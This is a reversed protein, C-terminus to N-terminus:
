NSVNKDKRFIGDLKSLDIDKNQDLCLQERWRTISNPLFRWAVFDDLGRGYCSSKIWSRGLDKLIIKNSEFPWYIFSKDLNYPNIGRIQTEPNKFIHMKNSVFNCFSTRLISPSLVFRPDDKKWARFGVQMIDPNEFFDAVYEPIECLLEWDDELNFTFEKNTQSFIWKVAKPFCAYGINCVINEFYNSTIEKIKEINEKESACDPNQPLCDINIFLTMKKFNIWPMYKQFSSYTKELLESRPMATTTVCTNESCPKSM